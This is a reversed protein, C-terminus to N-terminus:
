LVEGTGPLPMDDVMCGFVEGETTEIIILCSHFSETYPACAEYFTHINYGNTTAKFILHPTRIRLYEPLM